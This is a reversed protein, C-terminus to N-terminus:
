WLEKDLGLGPRDPARLTGSDFDLNLELADCKVFAVSDLDYKVINESALAASLAACLGLESEMMCGIGCLSDFQASLKAIRMAPYIGGCKMLKINILQAIGHELANRVDSFDFVSEDAMIPIDMSSRISTMSQWDKRAAPQEIYAINSGKTKWYFSLTKELDWSQNADIRYELAYPIEREMADILAACHAIDGNAKIKFARFGKRAFKKAEALSNELTDIGLTVDSQLCEKHAGLYRYLPLGADKSLCDYLAMDVAAKAAFNAYLSHDMREHILSPEMEVGVLANDFRKIAGLVSENTEGSIFGIASAEGYGSVGTDSILKIFVNEMQSISGYSIHFDRQTTVPIGKAEIRAIKM